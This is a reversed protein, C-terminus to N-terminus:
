DNVNNDNDDVSRDDNQSIKALVCDGIAMENSNTGQRTIPNYLITTIMVIIRVSFCIVQANFVQAHLSFLVTQFM